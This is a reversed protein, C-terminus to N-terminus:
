INKSFFSTLQFSGQWNGFAENVLVSVGIVSLAMIFKSRLESKVVASYIKLVQEEGIM